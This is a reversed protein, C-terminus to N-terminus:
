WLTSLETVKSLIRLVISCRLIWMVKWRYLLRSSSPLRQPLEGFLVTDPNLQLGEPLSCHLLSYVVADGSDTPVLTISDGVALVYETQPYEVVTPRALVRVELTFSCNGLANCAEITVSAPSLVSSFPSGLIIETAANLALGLPLTGNCVSAAVSDGWNSPVISISVGKELVYSASPYSFFSIPLLITFSLTTTNSGLANQTRITVQHNTVSLIPIGSIVGSTVNLEVDV